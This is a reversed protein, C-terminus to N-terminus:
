DGGEGEREGKVRGRGGRKEGEEGGEKEGKMEGEEGGEREGKMEGEGGGEEGEPCGLDHPAINTSPVTSRCVLIDM